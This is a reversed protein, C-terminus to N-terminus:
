NKWYLERYETPTMGEQELFRKNFYSTSPYGADFSIQRITMEKKELLWQKAKQLRCLTVYTMPTM